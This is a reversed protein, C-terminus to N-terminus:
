FWFSAIAFALVATLAVDLKPFKQEDFSIKAAIMAISNMIIVGGVFGSFRTGSDDPTIKLVYHAIFYLVVIPLIVIAYWKRLGSQFKIIQNNM